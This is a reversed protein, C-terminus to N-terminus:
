FHVHLDVTSKCFLAFAQSLIRMSVTALAPNTLSMQLRPKALIEHKIVGFAEVQIIRLPSYIFNHKIACDQRLQEALWVM